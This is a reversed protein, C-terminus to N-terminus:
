WIPCRALRLRQGCRVQANDISIPTHCARGGCRPSLPCSHASDRRIRASIPVPARSEGGIDLIHAVQPWWAARDSRTLCAAHQGWRLFAIPHPHESYGHVLATGASSRCNRCTPPAPQLLGVLSAQPFTPGRARRPAVRQPCFRQMPHVVGGGRLAAGCADAACPWDPRSPRFYDDNSVAQRSGGCRACRGGVSKAAWFQGGIVLM